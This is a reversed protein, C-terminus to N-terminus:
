ILKNRYIIETSVNAVDDRPKTKNCGDEVRKAATKLRKSWVFALGSRYMVEKLDEACIRV